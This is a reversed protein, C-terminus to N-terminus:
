PREGEGTYLAAKRELVPLLLLRRCDKVAVRRGRGPRLRLKGVAGLRLVRMRNVGLLLAAEPVSLRGNPPEFRRLTGRSTRYEVLVGHNKAM